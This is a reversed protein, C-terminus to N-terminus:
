NAGVMWAEGRARWRTLVARAIMWSLLGTWIVPLGFSPRVHVAAYFPLFVLLAGVLARMLFRADSAGLLVGDFVFAIAGPVQVAAVFLLATLASSRVAPDRSFAKSLLPAALAVLGGLAIGAVIAFREMRAVLARVEARDGHGLATGVIAQAAIALSDTALAAFFFVQIGIQHGGLVADGSKSAANLALAFTGMLAATRVFLYRGVVVLSRMAEWRPRAVAARLGPMTQALRLWFWVASVIQACVTGLASGGVGTRLGYVFAVELVINVVNALLIIVVTSRTDSRGRFAGIAVFSVFVFPLGIASIRLYTTAATLVDARAGILQALPRAVVAVVLAVCCGIAVALWAAQVVVMRAGRDDGSGTLFAIRATTGTSLFSFIWISVSLVLSAIALGGLPGTGLHGVIGTDVLVYLPEVVLGALAPLALALM